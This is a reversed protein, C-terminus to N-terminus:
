EEHYSSVRLRPSGAPATRRAQAFAAALGGRQFAASIRQSTADAPDWAVPEPGPHERLHRWVSEAVLAALAPGPAGDPFALPAMVRCYEIAEPTGALLDAGSPAAVPPLLSM